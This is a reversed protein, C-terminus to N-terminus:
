MTCVCRIISKLFCSVATELIMRWGYVEVVTVFPKACM